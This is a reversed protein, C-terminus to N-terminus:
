AGFDEEKMMMKNKEIWHLWAAWNRDNKLTERNGIVVFGRRARTMTVNMRRFDKLFGLNGSKNSRVSSFIILEKEM